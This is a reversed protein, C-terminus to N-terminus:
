TEPNAVSLRKCESSEIEKREQIGNILQVLNTSLQANKHDRDAVQEFITRFNARETMINESLCINRFGMRKVAQRTTETMSQLAETERYSGFKKIARLVEEWGDSWLPKEGNSVTAAMERIDAITPSFKNTSVYKRLAAEAVTYPIDSLERYWLEMAEMNPLMNDRPYFTKIAKALNIFEERTM